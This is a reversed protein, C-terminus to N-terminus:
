LIAYPDTPKPPSLTTQTIISARYAAKGGYQEVKEAAVAAKTQEAILNRRYENQQEIEQEETLVRKNIDVNVCVVKGEETAVLGREYFAQWDMEDRGLEVRYKKVESKVWGLTAEIAKLWRTVELAPTVRVGMSAAVTQEEDFTKRYPEFAEFKPTVRKFWQVVESAREEMAPLLLNRANMRRQVSGVRISTSRISAGHGLARPSLNGRADLDPEPTEVPFATRTLEMELTDLESTLKNVADTGEQKARTAEVTLQQQHQLQDLVEDLVTRGPTGRDVFSHGRRALTELAHDVKTMIQTARQLESLTLKTEKTKATKAKGEVRRQRTEEREREAEERGAIMLQNLEELVDLEKRRVDLELERKQVLEASEHHLNTLKYAEVERLMENYMRWQSGRFLGQVQEQAYQGIDQMRAMGGVWEKKTRRLMVQLKGSDKEATKQNGVCKRLKIKLTNLERKENELAQRDEADSHHMGMYERQLEDLRKQRLRRESALVNLSQQHTLHLKILDEATAPTVKSLWRLETSSSSLGLGPLRPRRASGRSSGRSSIQRPIGSTHGPRPVPVIADSRIPSRPTGSLSALRRGGRASKSRPSGLGDRTGPRGASPPTPAGFVSSGTSGMVTNATSPRFADAMPPIAVEMALGAAPRRGPPQEEQQPLAASGGCSALDARARAGL